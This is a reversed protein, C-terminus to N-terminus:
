STPSRHGSRAPGDSTPLSRVLRAAEGTAALSERADHRPPPDPRRARGATPRRSAAAAAPGSSPRHVDVKPGFGPDLELRRRGVITAFVFGQAKPEECVDVSHEIPERCERVRCRLDGTSRPPSKNRAEGVADEIAGDPVVHLNECHQMQVARRLGPLTTEGCGGAVLVSFLPGRQGAGRRLVESSRVAPSAATNERGGPASPAPRSAADQSCAWQVGAVPLRCQERLVTGGQVGVAVAPRPRSCTVHAGACARLFRGQASGQPRADPKQSTSCGPAAPCCLPPRATLSPWRTTPGTKGCAPAFSLAVPERHAVARGHRLRPRVAARRRMRERHTGIRPGDGRDLCRHTQVKGGSALVM